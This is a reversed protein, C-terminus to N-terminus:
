YLDLIINPDRLIADKFSKCSHLKERLMRKVLICTVTAPTNHSSDHYRANREKWTLFITIAFYLLGVLKRTGHPRNLLVLGNTYCNWVGSFSFTSNKLIDSIYTCSGFLHDQSEIANSCLLCKLDTNMRLARMRDKTLLRGKLALWLTFSCKPISFKHWVISLWIPPNSRSRITDWIFASNVSKSDVNHWFISDSSHIRIPLIKDRLYSWKRNNLILILKYNWKQSTQAQLCSTAENNTSQLQFCSTAKNWVLKFNFVVQLKMKPQKFNADVQLKM